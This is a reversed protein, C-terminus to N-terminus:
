NKDDKLIKNEDDYDYYESEGDTISRAAGDRM